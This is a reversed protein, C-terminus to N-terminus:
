APRPRADGRDRDSRAGLEVGEALRAPLDDVGDFDDISDEPLASLQGSEVLDFVIQGVDRSTRVGWERFVMPAMVGFEERALKVAFELLEQGSLHRRVPDARREEPLHMAAAQLTAAVFGYAEPAYRADRRRIAHVADWFTLTSSM